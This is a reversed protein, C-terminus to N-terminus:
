WEVSPQVVARSSPTSFEKVESFGRIEDVLGRILGVVQELPMYNEEFPDEATSSNFTRIQYNLPLPDSLSPTNRFTEDSLKLREGNKCSCVVVLCDKWGSPHDSCPKGIMALGSPKDSNNVLLCYRCTFVPRSPADDRFPLDLEDLVNLVDVVRLAVIRGTSNKRVLADTVKAIADPNYQDFVNELMGIEEGNFKRNFLVSLRSIDFQHKTTNKYQYSGFREVTSSM